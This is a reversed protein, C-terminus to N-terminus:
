YLAYATDQLAFRYLTHSELPLILNNEITANCGAHLLVRETFWTFMGFDCFKYM